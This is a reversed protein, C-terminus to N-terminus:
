LSIQTHARGPALTEADPNLRDIAFNLAAAFLLWALYPLMLAAATPRVRAFVLTTAAAAVILVLILGFAASVQHAGFFLPSWALNLLLQVVFLAVALRRLRAGRASVIMALALGTLIYLITWALGFAWGPPMFGPKALAAFWPNGYGSNALRGSLIGLMLVLPVIVIAWRMFAMRLQQKSAVQGFGRM